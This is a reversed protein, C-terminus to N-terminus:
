EANLLSFARSFNDIASQIHASRIDINMITIRANNCTFDFAAAEIIRFFVKVQLFLVPLIYGSVILPLKEAQSQPKPLTIGYKQSVIITQVFCSTPKTRTTLFLIKKDQIRLDDPHLTLSFLCAKFEM